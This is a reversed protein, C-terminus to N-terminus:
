DIAANRSWGFGEGRVCKKVVSVKEATEVEQMQESTIRDAHHGKVVEKRDACIKRSRM